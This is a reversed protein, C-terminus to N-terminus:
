EIIEQFVFSALALGFAPPVFSTSGPKAGKNSHPLESSTVVKLGGLRENSLHLKIKKALPCGSTKEITTVSIKTPDFRNGAGTTSIIKLKNKLAYTILALKPSLSDIADIIYDYQELKFDSINEENLEQHLATINADENILLLREKAAYVKPKGITEKTAFLQRNLNSLEFVDRDVITLHKFGSRVLAELATGGVGGIGFIIIKAKTIASFEEENILQLMRSFKLSSM